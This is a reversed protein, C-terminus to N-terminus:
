KRYCLRRLYRLFQRWSESDERSGEIAELWVSAVAPAIRSKERNIGNVVVGSLSISKNCCWLWMRRADKLIVENGDKQELRGFWVGASYTRIIVEEGIAYTNVPMTNKKKESM